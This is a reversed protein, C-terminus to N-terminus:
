RRDRGEAAKGDSLKTEILAIAAKRRSKGTEAQMTEFVPNLGNSLEKGRRPDTKGGVYRRL